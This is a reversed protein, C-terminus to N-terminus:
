VLLGSIEGQDQKLVQGLHPQLLAMWTGCCKYAIDVIFTNINLYQQIRDIFVIVVEHNLFNIGSVYMDLLLLLMM